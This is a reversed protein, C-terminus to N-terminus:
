HKATRNEYIFYAGAGILGLIGIWILPKLFWGILLGGIAGAVAGAEKSVGGAIKPAFLYGGAGGLLGFIVTLM